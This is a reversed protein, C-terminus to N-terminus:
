SASGNLSQYLDSSNKDDEVLKLHHNVWVQALQDVFESIQKVQEDSYTQKNKNLIQKCVKLNLM